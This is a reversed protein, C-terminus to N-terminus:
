LTFSTSVSLISSENHYTFVIYSKRQISLTSSGMKNKCRSVLLLIFVYFFTAELYASSSLDIMAIMIPIDLGSSM